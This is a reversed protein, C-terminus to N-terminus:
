RMFKRRIALALLAAQLPAFIKELIVFTEGWGTTPKRYEVNQFTATALSHRSAEYKNLARITCLGASSSQAIPKDLPCVYFDVKTYVFASAALVLALVIAAWGWNEGYRSTWKYWWLLTIPLRGYWRNIRQIDFATFRFKSAQRYHASEEANIALRRYVVELREYGSERRKAEEKWFLINNFRSWDFAFNKIKWKIDTFDFKRVDTNIFSDPKLEVIQFSIKEPKEIDVSSFNLNGQPWSNHKNDKGSFKAFGEFSAGEFTLLSKIRTDRFDATKKFIAQSFNAALIFNVGRFDALKEFMAEIFLSSGFNAGAFNADDEFTSNSFSSYSSTSSHASSSNGILFKADAFDTINKFSASSFDVDNEFTASHFNTALEDDDNKSFITKSFSTRAKFVACIFQCNALFKADYFSVEHNFTVWEFDVFKNFTHGSFDVIQPFWTGYFLYDEQEIRESFAVAFEDQKEQSPFHFICYFKDRHKYKVPLNRCVRNRIHGKQYENFADGCHCVINSIEHRKLM